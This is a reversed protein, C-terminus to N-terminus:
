RIDSIPLRHIIVDRRSRPSKLTVHLIGHTQCTTQQSSDGQHVTAPQSADTSHEDAGFCESDPQDLSADHSTIALRTTDHGNVDCCRSRGTVAHV